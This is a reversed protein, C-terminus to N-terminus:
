NKSKFFDKMVIDFDTLKHINDSTIYSTKEVIIIKDIDVKLDPHNDRIDRVDFYEIGNIIVSKVNKNKLEQILM